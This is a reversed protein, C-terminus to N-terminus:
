ADFLTRESPKYNLTWERLVLAAAANAEDQEAKTLTHWAARTAEEPSGVAVCCGAHGLFAIHNVADATFAAACSKPWDVLAQRMADQFEVSCRMLDAANEIHRKREEGVTRRWLGANTEELEVYHYYKRDAKPM